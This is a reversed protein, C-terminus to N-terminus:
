ECTGFFLPLGTATDIIAYVFPRDLVVEKDPPLVACEADMIVATVAAAKTGESDVAIHTKHLVNSIYVNGLEDTGLGSFDALAHDFADTMGLAKLDDVLSKEYDAEFAPLAIMVLENKAGTILKLLAKGDTKALFEEPTVGEDPLLAAFAYKGGDYPKIFGTVGKGSLYRAEEGYMMTVIKNGDRGHFIGERCATEYFPTQWKADFCLANVLVMVTSASVSEETLISPIMGKTKENVWGNVAAVADAPAGFDVAAIDADYTNEILKIFDSNVSFHPQSTVWVSNAASFAADDTSTLSAYFSFLQANLKESDDFGLAALMQRLTEGDAGNVTMALATLVSLPSIMASGAADKECARLLELALDAMADSFAPELASAARTSSFTRSTLFKVKSNDGPIGPADKDPGKYSVAPQGGRGATCASCLLMAAALLACLISRLTKKM